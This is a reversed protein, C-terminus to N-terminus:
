RKKTSTSEPKSSIQDRIAQLLASEEPNLGDVPVFTDDRDIIKRVAAAFDASAPDSAMQDLAAVVADYARTDGRAAAVMVTVFTETKEDQGDESTGDSIRRWADPEIGLDSASNLHNLARRAIMTDLPDLGPLLLDPDREGNQIRQLVAALAQRHSSNSLTNLTHELSHAAANRTSADTHHVAAHLASLVPDWAALLQSQDAEAAALRLIQDVATQPDPARRPVRNLLDVLHVGDIREVIRSLEGFSLPVASPNSELQHGLVALYNNHRGSGIQYWILTAALEHAWFQQPETGIFHLYHALNNHSGAISEPDGVLYALRLAEQELDVARDFHGLVHDITAIATLTAGLMGINNTAEFAKRCDILLERAEAVRGLELLPKHSNFAATAQANQSAGRRRASDAVEANLELVLPWRELELAAHAVTNLLAERINWTSLTTDDASPDPLDDMESRLKQGTDLVQQVHGQAMLVQLRRGANALQAWPGFGARRGYEASRDAMILAEDLRGRDKYLYILSNALYAAQHFKQHQVAADLLQQLLSEAQDPNLRALARAYTGALNLELDTGRTAEAAAALLPLLTTAIATSEDRELVESAALDLERWRGQRWLYPAASRGAKMVLWGLEEEGERTTAHIINYLWYNAVETDITTTLSPDAAARATEAVGPHIRYWVQRDTGPDPDADVLAREVLPALSLDLDPPDGTLGLAQWVNPWNAEVVQRERDGEELCALLQFLVAASQPLTSAAARAWGHLVALYDEDSATPEGTALFAQLRTGRNLWTRDAEDLRATMAAPDSAHWDALEILKPHGQVVAL